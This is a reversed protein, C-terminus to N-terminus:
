DAEAQVVPVNVEAEARGADDATASTVSKGDLVLTLVAGAPVGSVQFEIEQLNPTDKRYEIEAEGSAKGGAETPALAALREIEEADDGDVPAFTGRLLVQGQADRVEAISANRFDGVVPASQQGSLYVIMTAAFAITAILGAVAMRQHSNNM